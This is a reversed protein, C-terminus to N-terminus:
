CPFTSSSLGPPIGGTVILGRRLRLAPKKLFMCNTKREIVEETFREQFILSFGIYLSQKMLNLYSLASVEPDNATRFCFQSPNNFLKM